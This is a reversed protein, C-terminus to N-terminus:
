GQPWAAAVPAVAVPRVGAWLPRAAGTRSVRRPWLRALAVAAGVLLLLGAYGVYRVASVAGRLPDGDATAGASAPPVASPSGVASPLAGAVPHGEASIGRYSGLCAGRPVGGPVPVAVVPGRVALADRDARP